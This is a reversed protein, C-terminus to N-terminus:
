RYEIGDNDAIYQREDVGRAPVILKAGDSTRVGRYEYTGDALKCIAVRSDATSGFLM